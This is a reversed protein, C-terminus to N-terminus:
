RLREVLRDTEQDRRPQALLNIRRMESEVGTLVLPADKAFRMEHATQIAEELMRARLLLRLRLRQAKGDDLDEPPHKWAQEVRERAEDFREREEDILAVLVSTFFREETDLEGDDLALLLERRAREDDGGRVLLQMARAAHLVGVSPFSSGLADALALAEGADAPDATGQTLPWGITHATELTPAVLIMSAILALGAHTVRGKPGHIGGEDKFRYVEKWRENALESVREDLALAHADFRGALAVLEAALAFSDVLKKEEAEVWAAPGRAIRNVAGAIASCIRAADSPAVARTALAARAHGEGRPIAGRDFAAVAAEVAAHAEKQRSEVEPLVSPPPPAVPETPGARPPSRSALFVGAGALVLALVLGLALVPRRRGGGESGSSKGALLAELDRALEGPGAHRREPDKALARSIVAELGPPVGAVDSAPRRRGELVARQVAFSSAGAHPKEGTVLEHLVAGLSFVDARTDVREGAFQEPAMYAPTGLVTGTETLRSAGLDRVCGFDALRPEDREDFLVNEPKVDRHVLGLASCRELTRGLRAVTTAAEIWEFRGRKALREGLSGGSMLDMVFGFRGKETSMEHIPVVGKGELRALAEAERRFRALRDPDPVGELVKLARRAGTTKHRVLFVRGM